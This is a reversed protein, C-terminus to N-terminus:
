EYEQRKAAGLQVGPWRYELIEKVEKLSKHGFNPMRLLEVETFIFIEELFHVNQNRLCNVTRGGFGADAIPTKTQPVELPKANVKHGVPCLQYVKGEHVIIIKPVVVDEIKVDASVINYATVDVIVIAGKM